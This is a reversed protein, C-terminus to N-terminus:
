LKCTFLLAWTMLSFDTVEMMFSFSKRVRRLWGDEDVNALGALGELFALIEVEDHVIEVAAVQAVM